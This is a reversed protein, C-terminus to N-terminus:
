QKTITVLGTKVLDMYGDVNVPENGNTGTV